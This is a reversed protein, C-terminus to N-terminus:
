VFVASLQYYGTLLGSSSPFQKEFNFGLNQFYIIYSSKKIIINDVLVNGEEILIKAKQRSKVLNKSFLYVDLRM